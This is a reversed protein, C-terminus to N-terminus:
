PILVQLRNESCKSPNGAEIRFERVHTVAQQM